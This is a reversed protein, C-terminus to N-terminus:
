QDVLKKDDDCIMIDQFWICPVVQYHHDNCCTNDVIYYKKKNLMWSYNPDNFYEQFKM